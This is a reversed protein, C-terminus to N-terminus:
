PPAYTSPIVGDRMATEELRPLWLWLGRWNKGAEAALFLPPPLEGRSQWQSFALPKFSARIESLNEWPWTKLKKPPM